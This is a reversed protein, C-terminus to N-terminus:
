ITSKEGKEKQGAFSHATTAEENTDIYEKM